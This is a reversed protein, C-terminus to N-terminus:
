GNLKARLADEMKHLTTWDEDTPDGGKAVSIMREVLAYIDMGASVLKPLMELATIVFPM